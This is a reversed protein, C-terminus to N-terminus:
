KGSYSLSNKFLFKCLFCLGLAQFFTVEQLGFIEPMLWNWLLMVAVSILISFVVIDAIFLFIKTLFEIM